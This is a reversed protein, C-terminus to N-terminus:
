RATCLSHDRRSVLTFEIELEASVNSHQMEHFMELAERFQAAQVYGDRDM